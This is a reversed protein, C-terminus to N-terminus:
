FFYFVNVTAKIFSQSSSPQRPYKWKSFKSEPYGHPSWSDLGAITAPYFIPRRYSQRDYSAVILGNFSMPFRQNTSIVMSHQGATNIPRLAILCDALWISWYSPGMLNQRKPGTLLKNLIDMQASGGIAAPQYFVAEAM